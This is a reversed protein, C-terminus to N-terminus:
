LYVATKNPKTVEAWGVASFTISILIEELHKWTEIAPLIPHRCIKNLLEYYEFKSDEETLEDPM